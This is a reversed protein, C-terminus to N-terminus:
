EEGDDEMLAEETAAVLTDLYLIFDDKTIVGKIYDRLLNIAEENNIVDEAIQDLSPTNPVDGYPDFHERM